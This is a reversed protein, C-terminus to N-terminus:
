TDDTGGATVSNIDQDNLTPNLLEPLITKEHVNNTIIELTQIELTEEDIGIHIKRWIYRKPGGKAWNCMSSHKFATSAPM